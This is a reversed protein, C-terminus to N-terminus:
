KKYDKGSYKYQKDFDEAYRFKYGNLTQGQFNCLKWINKMKLAKVAQNVNDWVAIINNDLDMQLVYHIPSEKYFHDKYKEKMILSRKLRTEESQKVVGKIGKNWAVQGMHAKSLRKREEDTAKRGRNPYTTKLIERIKQKEEETHKYGLCGVNGGTSSNYGFEKENSRHAKILKIELQEADHKSINEELIYHKVNEWGYKDIASKIRQSRYNFGKNGWRVEPKRSTIGIYVKNNPFVHIYVCFKKENKM